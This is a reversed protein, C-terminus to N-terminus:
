KRRHRQRRPTGVDDNDSSDSSLTIPHANSGDGHRGAFVRPAAPRKDSAKLRANRLDAEAREVLKSLGNVITMKLIPAAPPVHMDDDDNAPFLTAVTTRPAVCRPPEDVTSADRAALQKAELAEAKMQQDAFHRFVKQLDAELTTAFGTRNEIERTSRKFDADYVATNEDLFERWGDVRPRGAEDATPEKKVERIGHLVAHTRDRESDSLEEDDIYEREECEWCVAEQGYEIACATHYVRDCGDCYVGPKVSDAPENCLFCVGDVRKKPQRQKKKTKPSDTFAPDDDDDDDSSSMYMAMDYAEYGDSSSSDDDDDDNSEVTLDVVKQLKTRIEEDDDSVVTVDNDPPGSIDVDHKDSSKLNQFFLLVKRSCEGVPPPPPLARRPKTVPSSVIASTPLAPKKRKVTVVHPAAPTGPALPAPKHELAAAAVGSSASTHMPPPLVACNSAAPAGDDDRQRKAPNGDMATPGDSTRLPRKASHKEVDPSATRLPKEFDSSDYVLADYCRSMLPRSLDDRLAPTWEFFIPPTSRQMSLAPPSPAQQPPPAPRSAPPARPSPSPRSAPRRVVSDDEDDSSSVLDVVDTPPKACRDNMRGRRGM